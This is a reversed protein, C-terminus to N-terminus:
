DGIGIHYNFNKEIWQKAKVMNRKRKEKAKESYVNNFVKKEIKAIATDIAREIKGRVYTTSDKYYKTTGTKDDFTFMNSVKYKSSLLDNGETYRTTHDGSKKELQNKYKDVDAQDYFYRWKGGVKIKKIYKWHKIEDTPDTKYVAYYQM